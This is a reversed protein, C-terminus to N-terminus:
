QASYNTCIKKDIKKGPVSLQFFKDFIPFNFKFKFGGITKNGTNIIKPTLKYLHEEASTELKEYDFKVDVYSNIFEIDDDSTQNIFVEKLGLILTHIDRGFTNHEIWLAQKKTLTKIEDPLDNMSPMPTNKFLVPFVNIGRQLARSIEKRVPDDPDDLRRKDSNKTTINLWDPGIVAILAKCRELANDLEVDFDSSPPIDDVDMYINDEGFENALHDYIRGADAETDERRYSIFVASSKDPNDSFISDVAEYGSQRVTYLRDGRSNLTFGILEEECLIDLDVITRLELGGGKLGIIRDGDLSSENVFPEGLTENRIMNIINKLLDKQEQTLNYKM